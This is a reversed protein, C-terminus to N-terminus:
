QEMERRKKELAEELRRNELRSKLVSVGLSAAFCVLFCLFFMAWPVWMDVPFWDFLVIFLAILAVTLALMCATRAAIGMRKILRDTFFIYRLFIILADLVLFEAMVAVPIGEKGLVFFASLEKASEGFLVTFVLMCLMSFGFCILVQALYDLFTKREEM